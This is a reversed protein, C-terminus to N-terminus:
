RKDPWIVADPKEAWTHEEKFIPSIYPNDELHRIAWIFYMGYGPAAVQPHDYNPKILVTDNEELLIGEGELKLLGFGISPYFKYFYIEPQPHYHSPFGAWKGPYHMDEGIMLNSDPNISYDIITKVIRTATENMTGQGRTEIRVDEDKYIRCYDLRDNETKFVAIETDENLCEITIDVDKCVQVLIPDYDYFNMRELIAEKDEYSVKIKGYILLYARELSDNNSYEQHMEMKLLGFDMLFEKYPGHLDVIPNVGLEFPKNQKIKM